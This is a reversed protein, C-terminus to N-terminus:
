RRFLGRVAEGLAGASRRAADAAGGAARGIAGGAGAVLASYDVSWDPNDLAGTFRIPITLGAVQGLEPVGQGKSTAVM